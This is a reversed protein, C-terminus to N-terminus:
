KYDFFLCIFKKKKSSVNRYSDILNVISKHGRKYAIDRATYGQNDKLNIDAGKDLLLKIIDIKNSAVAWMLANWKHGFYSQIDVNPNCYLINEVISKDKRERISYILATNGYVDQANIDPNYDLIIKITDQSSFKTVWILATSGNNSKFNVNAGFLILGIIKREINLNYLSTESADLIEKLKNDLYESNYRDQCLITILRKNLRILDNKFRKFYQNVLYINKLFNSLNDFLVFVDENERIIKEVVLEFIYIKLEDPLCSFISESDDSYNQMSLIFNSFIIFILSLFISLKVSIRM